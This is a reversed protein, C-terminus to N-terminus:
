VFIQFSVDRSCWRVKGDNESGNICDDAKPLFCSPLNSGIQSFFQPIFTKLRYEVRLQRQKANTMLGLTFSIYVYCLCNKRYEMPNNMLILYM